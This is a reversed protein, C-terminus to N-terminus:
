IGVHETFVGALGVIFSGGITILAIEAISIDTRFLADIGLILPFILFGCFFFLVGRKPNYDFAKSNPDPAERLQWLSWGLIALIPMWLHWPAQYNEGLVWEQILVIVSAVAIGVFALARRKM